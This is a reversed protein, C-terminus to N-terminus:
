YLVGPGGYPSSHPPAGSISPYYNVPSRSRYGSPINPFGHYSSSPAPYSAPGQYNSRYTGFPWNLSPLPAYRNLRGYSNGPQYCGNPGCITPRPGCQGNACTAPYTACFGNACNRSPYTSYNGYPAYPQQASALSCAFLSAIAFTAYKFM